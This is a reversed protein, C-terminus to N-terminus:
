SDSLASPGKPQAATAPALGKQAESAFDGNPTERLYRQYESQAQETKGQLQYCRARTIRAQETRPTAPTDSAIEGLGSLFRQCGGRKLSREARLLFLEEAEEASEDANMEPRAAAAIAPPSTAPAPSSFAAIPGPDSSAVPAPAAAVSPGRAASAARDAAAQAAAARARAAAYEAELADKPTPQQESILAPAAGGREPAMEVAAPPPPVNIPEPQMAAVVPAAAPARAAKFAKSAVVPAVTAVKAPAAPRSPDVAPATVPISQPFAAFEQEDMPTPAPRGAAAPPAPAERKPSTTPAPVPASQWEAAALEAEASSMPVDVRARQASAIKAGPALVVKDMELRDAPALSALRAVISRGAFAAKRGAEVLIPLANPREVHIRGQSSAVEVGARSLAVSFVSAVGHAKFGGASLELAGGSQAAVRGRELAASAGEETFRVLKLQSSEGLRMRTGDPLRVLAFGAKGTRVAEGAALLAGEALPADDRARSLGQAALVTPAPPEARAVAPGAAAPALPLAEEPPPIPAPEGRRSAFAVAGAGLMAVAVAAALWRGSPVAAAVARSEVLDAIAADLRNWDLSPLVQAARVALARLRQVLALEDRCEPCDSLHAWLVSADAPELESLAFSWIKVPDHLATM